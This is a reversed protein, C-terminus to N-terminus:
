AGDHLHDPLTRDNLDRIHPLIELNITFLGLKEFIKRQDSGKVVILGRNGQALHCFKGRVSFSLYELPVSGPLHSKLSLRENIYRNARSDTATTLLNSHDVTICIVEPDKGDEPICAISIRDPCAPWWPSVRQCPCFLSLLVHKQTLIDRTSSREDQISQCFPLYEVPVSKPLPHHVLRLRANDQCNSRFDKSKSTQGSHNLAICKIKPDSGDRPITAISLEIPVPKGEHYFVNAHAFYVPQSLVSM